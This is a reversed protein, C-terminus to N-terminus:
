YFCEQKGHEVWDEGFGWTSNSCQGHQQTINMTSQQEQQNHNDSITKKKEVTCFNM